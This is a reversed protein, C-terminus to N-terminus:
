GKHKSITMALDSYQQSKEPRGTAFYMRALKMYISKLYDEADCSKFISAAELLNKEVSAFEGKLYLAEGIIRKTQAILIKDGLKEAIQLAQDLREKSEQWKEIMAYAKGEINFLYVLSKKDMGSTSIQSLVQLLPGAYGAELMRYREEHVEEAIISLVKQLGAAKVLHYIAEVTNQASTQESLYYQAASAHAEEPYSLMSYLVDKLMDHLFFEQNDTRNVLMKKELSYLLSNLNRKNRGAIAQIKVPSRFVSLSMLISLEDQSLVELIEKKFYSLLDELSFNHPPKSPKKKKETGKTLMFFLKLAMPHGKFRKWISLLETNSIDAGVLNSIMKESDAFTLGGLIIEKSKINDLFFPAKSRSLIITKNAHLLKAQMHKILTSIKEDRIKHYDDFVFICGELRNLSKVLTDLNYSEDQMVGSFVDLRQLLDNAGHKSLFLALRNILYSFTDIEKFTHWFIGEKSIREEVQVYKKAFSTKGIGAIGTIFFFNTKESERVLELEAARGVIPLEEIISQEQEEDISAEDLAINNNTRDNKRCRNKKGKGLAIQLGNQKLAISVNNTVLSYLKVNQGLRSGWSGTVLGCKEMAKLRRVIDGEKKNLYKSLDRPSMPHRRLLTIIQANVKNGMLKLVEINNSPM